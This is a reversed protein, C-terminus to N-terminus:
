MNTAAPQLILKLEGPSQPPLIGEDLPAPANLSLRISLGHQTTPTGWPDGGDPVFCRTAVTALLMLMLLLL